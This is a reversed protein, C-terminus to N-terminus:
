EEERQPYFAERGPFGFKKVALKEPFVAYEALGRSCARERSDYLTSEIGATKEELSTLRARVTILEDSTYAPQLYEVSLKRTFGATGAIVFVVWSAIEDHLTAQIGGHLVLNYGQYDEHPHWYTVVEDGDRYFDLKLGASNGPDCGFCNYSEMRAFPNNLKQM